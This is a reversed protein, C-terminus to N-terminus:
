TLLCLMFYKILYLQDQLSSQELYLRAQLKWINIPVNGVINCGVHLMLVYQSSDTIKKESVVWVGIPARFKADTEELV